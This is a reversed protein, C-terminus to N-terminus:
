KRWYQKCLHSHYIMMLIIPWVDCVIIFALEMIVNKSLFGGVYGIIILFGYIIWMVGHKVNWARVDTIEEPSPAKDGTYFGVPTKQNIQYIGIVIMVMAVVAFIVLAIINEATM